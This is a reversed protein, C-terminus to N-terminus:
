SVWIQGIEIEKILITPLETFQNPNGFVLLVPYCQKLYM